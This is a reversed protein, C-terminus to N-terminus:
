VDTVRWDPPLPQGAMLLPLEVVGASKSGLMGGVRGAGSRRGGRPGWDGPKKVLSNPQVLKLLKSLMAAVSCGLSQPACAGGMYAGQEEQQMERAPM